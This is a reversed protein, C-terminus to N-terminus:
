RKVTPVALLLSYTRVFVADRTVAPTAHTGEPLQFRSILEFQRAARIMVVEGTRSINFVQSGTRVPSAFYQGGLRERWLTKMSATDLCTVVGRDSWFFVLDGSAVATPVYPIDSKLEFVVEPSQGTERPPRVVVLQRGAGGEGCSGILLGGVAVPSAVVRHRFVPLEWLPRGTELDLSSIGHAWSTLVLQARGSEGYLVLPTSYATKESRRPTKWRVSGNEADFAWISSEGDQESALIVIGNAVIPSTGFGHEAMFPGLSRRWLERGTSIELAVLTLEEPHAIAWYIRRDDVAPTSSAYSNFSHLRHVRSPYRREWVIAGDDCRFAQLIQTADEDVASSVFVMGAGVVPSSHGTGALKARWRFTKENWETPVEVGDYVGSGNPGRFRDWAVDGDAASEAESDGRAGGLAILNWRTAGQWGDGPLLAEMSTAGRQRAGESDWTTIVTNVSNTGLPRVGEQACIWGSAIGLVLASLIFSACALMRAPFATVAGVGTLLGARGRSSKCLKVLM